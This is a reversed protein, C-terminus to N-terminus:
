KEATVHFGADNLAKVLAAGDFDGKVTLTSSKAKADESEVGAVSKVAKKISNNCSGCCNHIGKLTLSKVKGEKVGSDNKVTIERSNTVGHFGAAALADVVQQAAKADAATFEVKSEEQNATGKVKAKELVKEVATVCQGCCLHTKTLEVKVEARASTTVLALSVAVVFVLSRVM